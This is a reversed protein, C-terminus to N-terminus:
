LDVDPKWTVSGDPHVSVKGTTAKAFRKGACACVFQKREMHDPDTYAWKRYYGTGSCVRCGSKAYVIVDDNTVEKGRSAAEIETGISESM